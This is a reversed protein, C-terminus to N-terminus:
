MFPQRGMPPQGLEQATAYRSDVFNWDDRANLGYPGLDQVIAMNNVAAGM